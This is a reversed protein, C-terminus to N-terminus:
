RFPTYHVALWITKIDPSTWEVRHKCHAPILTSAGEELLILQDRDAIRLSASGKIVMVWEDDDQDFWQTSPSAQPESIIRELRFNPAQIIPEFVEPQGGLHPITLMSHVMLPKIEPMPKGKEAHKRLICWLNEIETGYNKAPNAHVNRGNENTSEARESEAPQYKFLV